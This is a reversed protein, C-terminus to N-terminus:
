FTDVVFSEYKYLFLISNRKLIGIDYFRVFEVMERLWFSM